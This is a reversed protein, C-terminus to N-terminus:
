DRASTSVGRMPGPLPMDHVTNEGSHDAKIQYKRKDNNKTRLQDGNSRARRYGADQIVTQEARGASERCFIQPPASLGPFIFFACASPARCFLRKRRSCVLRQKKPERVPLEGDIERATRCFAVYGKAIDDEETREESCPSKGAARPGFIVGVPSKRAASDENQRTTGVAPITERLRQYYYRM